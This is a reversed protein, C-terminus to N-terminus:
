FEDDDDFYFNDLEGVAMAGPGYAPIVPELDVPDQPEWRQVGNDDHYGKAELYSHQDCRANFFSDFRQVFTM